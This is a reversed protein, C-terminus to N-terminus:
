RETQLNLFSAVSELDSFVHAGNAKVMRCVAALSKTQHTEFAKGDDAHLICLLTKKPRKNSDDVAEAVSYVGSMLPTITYLCFDCIERQRLEEAQHEPKWDPVVPDYVECNLMPILRSRWTSENVTGGLFVRLEFEGLSISM